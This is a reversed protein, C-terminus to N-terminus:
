YLHYKSAEGRITFGVKKIIKEDHLCLRRLFVYSGSYILLKFCVNELNLEITEFKSVMYLM